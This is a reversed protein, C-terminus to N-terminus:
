QRCPLPASGSYWCGDSLCTPQHAAQFSMSQFLVNHTWNYILSPLVNGWANKVKTQLQLGLGFWNQSIERTVLVFVLLLISICLIESFEDISFYHNHFCVYFSGCHESFIQGLVWICSMKRCFHWSSAAFPFCLMLLQKHEIRFWYTEHFM